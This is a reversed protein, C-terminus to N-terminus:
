SACRCNRQELGCAACRRARRVELKSKMTGLRVMAAAAFASCAIPVLHALTLHVVPEKTKPQKMTPAVRRHLM